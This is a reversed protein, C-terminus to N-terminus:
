SKKELKKQLISFPTTVSSPANRRLLDMVFHFIIKIKKGDENLIVIFPNQFRGAVICPPLLM